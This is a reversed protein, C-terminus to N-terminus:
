IYPSLPFCNANHGGASIRANVDQSKWASTVPLKM